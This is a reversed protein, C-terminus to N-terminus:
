SHQTKIGNVVNQKNTRLRTTNKRASAGEGGGGEVGARVVSCVCARSCVCVCMRACVVVVVVVVVVMV